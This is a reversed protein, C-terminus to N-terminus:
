TTEPNPQQMAQLRNGIRDYEAEIAALRQTFDNLTNAKACLELEKCLAALGSAGISASSGAFAHAVKAVQPCDGAMGAQRLTAIRPPSDNRYLKALEAFDAGFMDRVADLEDNGQEQAAQYGDMHPIPCDIHQAVQRNIPNDGVALIRDALTQALACQPVASQAPPIGTVSVDTAGAMKIVADVPTTM